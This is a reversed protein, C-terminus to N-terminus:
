NCTFTIKDKFQERYTSDRQYMNLMDNLYKYQFVLFYAQEIERRFMSKSEIGSSLDVKGLSYINKFLLHLEYTNSCYRKLVKKLSEIEDM